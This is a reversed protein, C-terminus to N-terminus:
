NDYAYPNVEGGGSGGQDVSYVYNTLAKGVCEGASPNDDCDQYNQGTCKNSRGYHDYKRVSEHGGYCVGYFQLGFHVYGRLQAKKACRCALDKMYDEWHNWDILKGSFQPGHKDRDQFLLHELTRASGSRDHFCGVKSYKVDCTGQYERLASDVDQDVQETLQKLRDELNNLDEYDRKVLNKAFCSFLFASIFVGSLLVKIM